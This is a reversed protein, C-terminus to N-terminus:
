NEFKYVAVRAPYLVSGSFIYGSKLEEAVKGDLKIDDTKRTEVAEMSIHDYAMGATKIEIVLSDSLVAQFQKLVLKLGEEVPNKSGPEIHKLALKLNDYVPLIEELLARNAFKVFEQKWSQTEKKLNQYDAIARVYESKYDTKHEKIKVLGEKIYPAFEDAGKLWEEPTKWASDSLEQGLKLEGLSEIVALYDIFIYHKAEGNYSGMNHGDLVDIFELGAVDLNADELAEREVVSELSEGPVVPGGICTYKDEWKPSRFLLIENKENAIFLRTIVKVTKPKQKPSLM